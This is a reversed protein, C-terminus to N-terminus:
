VNGSAILNGGHIRESLINSIYELNMYADPGHKEFSRTAKCLSEAYEFIVEHQVKPTLKKERAKEFLYNMIQIM